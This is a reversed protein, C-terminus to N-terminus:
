MFHDSNQTKENLDRQGSFGYFEGEFVIAKTVLPAFAPLWFTSCFFNKVIILMRKTYKEQENKFCAKRYNSISTHRGIQREKVEFHFTIKKATISSIMIKKWVWPCLVKDMRTFQEIFSNYISHWKIPQKLLCM